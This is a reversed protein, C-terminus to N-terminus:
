SHKENGYGIFFSLIEEQQEEQEVAVSMTMGEFKQKDVLIKGKQSALYACATSVSAVGVTEKVFSSQRINLGELDLEKISDEDEICVPAHYKEKLYLVLPEKAKREITAFQKISLSSINAQKLVTIVGDDAGESSREKKCGVGITVARPRLYLIHELDNKKNQYEEKRAKCSIVVKINTTEGKDFCKGSTLRMEEEIREKWKPNECFVQITKGELLAGSVYKLKEINEIALNHKKAFLDFSLQGEVDTATTIVPQGNTIQALAKALDNAGGLHGSLLSICYQGKQDMVVVAPDKAKHVIREAIMRVVIGTAMICIIGEYQKMANQLTEKLNHKGYCDGPLIASCKKALQEGQETVYFYAFKRHTKM